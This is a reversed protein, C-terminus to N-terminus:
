AGFRSVTGAYEAAVYVADPTAAVGAHDDLMLRHVDSGDAPSVATVSTDAFSPDDNDTAALVVAAEDAALSVVPRRPSPDAVPVTWRDTQAALDVAALDVVPTSRNPYRMVPCYLMGDHAIPEGGPSVGLDTRFREEGTALDFGRVRVDASEHGEVLAVTDETVAHATVAPYVSRTWRRDGTGVDVAVTEGDRTAGFACGDAVLLRRYAGFRAGADGAEVLPGPGPKDEWIRTGAAADYAALGHAHSGVVLREEGAAEVRRAHYAGGAAPTAWALSGDDRDLAYLVQARPGFDDDGPGTIFYLRTDDAALFLSRGPQIPRDVETRLAPTTRWRERGDPALRATTRDDSLVFFDGDLANVDRPGGDFSVQWAATGTTPDLGHVSASGASRVALRDATSALATTLDEGFRVGLPAPLSATWAPAPTDTRTADDTSTATTTADDPDERRRSGCGALALTAGLLGARALVSRRSSSRPSRPSV